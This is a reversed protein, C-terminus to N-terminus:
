TRGATGALMKNHICIISIFSFEKDACTRVAPPRIRYFNQRGGWVSIGPEMKGDHHFPLLKSHILIPCLYIRDSLIVGRRFHAAIHKRVNSICYVSMIWIAAVIIEFSIDFIETHVATGNGRLLCRCDIVILIGLIRRGNLFVKNRM